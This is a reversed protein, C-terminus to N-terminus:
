EIIIKKTLTTQHSTINLFYLGKELTSVDISIIEADDLHKSTYSLVVRGLVNTIELGSLKEDKESKLYVKGNAIPNPYIDFEGLNITEKIFASVQSNISGGKYINTSITHSSITLLPFKSIASYFRNEISYIGSTDSYSIKLKLVNPYTGSPLLLTGTGDGSTVITGSETTRSYTDTSLSGYAFPLTYYTVPDNYITCGSTSPAALGLYEVKTNTINYVQAYGGIAFLTAINGNPYLSNQAVSSMPAYTYTFPTNTGTSIGTYNWTQSTGSSGLFLGATDLNITSIIDGVVPNFAATLTHQAKNQSFTFALLMLIYIKKM